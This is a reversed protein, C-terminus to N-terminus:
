LLVDISLYTDIYKYETAINAAVDKTASSANYLVCLFTDLCTPVISVTGQIDSVLQRARDKASQNTLRSQLNEKFSTTILKTHECAIIVTMLDEDSKSIASILEVIHSTIANKAARKLTENAAM